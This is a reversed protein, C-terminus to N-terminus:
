NKQSLSGLLHKFIQLSLLDREGEGESLFPFHCYFSHPKVWHSSGPWRFTEEGEWRRNLLHSFRSKRWAELGFASLFLSAEAWYWIGRFIGTTAWGPPWNWLGGVVLVVREEETDGATEWFKAGEEDSQSYQVYGGDQIEGWGWEYEEGHEKSCFTVVDCWWVCDCEEEPILAQCTPLYINIGNLYFYFNRSRQHVATTFSSCELRGNMVCLSHKSGREVLIRGLSSTLQAWLSVM